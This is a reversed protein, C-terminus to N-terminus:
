GAVLLQLVIGVDFTQWAAMEEMGVADLLV